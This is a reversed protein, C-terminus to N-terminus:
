RQYIIIEVPGELRLRRSPADHTRRAAPANAALRRILAPRKTLERAARALTRPLARPHLQRLAAQRSVRTALAPLARVADRGQSRTLIRAAANAGNVLQRALTRSVRPQGRRLLPRALARATLGALVPLAEDLGQESFFEALEDFADAESAGRRVYSRLLPSVQHLLGERQAGGLLARFFEDSDKADLADAVTADFAALADEDAAFRDQESEDGFSSADESQGESNELQDGGESEESEEFEDGGEAAPDATAGDDSDAEDLAEDDEAADPPAMGAEAEDLAADGRTEAVSQEAM